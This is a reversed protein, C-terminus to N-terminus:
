AETKHWVCAGRGAKGLANRSGGQYIAWIRLHHAGTKICSLRFHRSVLRGGGQGLCVSAPKWHASDPNRLLSSAAPSDICLLSDSAPPPPPNILYLTKGLSPLALQRAPSMLGWFQPSFPSKFDSIEPNGLMLWSLFDHQKLLVGARPLPFNM